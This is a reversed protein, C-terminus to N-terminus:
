DTSSKVLSITYASNTRGTVIALPVCRYGYRVCFNLRKVGITSPQYRGPLTPFQRDCFFRVSIKVVAHTKKHTYFFFLLQNMSSALRKGYIAVPRSAKSTGGPWGSMPGVM